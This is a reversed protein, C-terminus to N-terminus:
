YTIKTYIRSAISDFIPGLADANPAYYYQGCSQTSPLTVGLPACPDNTRAGATGVLAMYRLLPAGRDTTTSGSTGLMISYIAMDSGLTEKSNTDLPHTFAARDVM